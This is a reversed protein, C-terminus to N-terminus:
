INYGHKKEDTESKPHRKRPKQPATNNDENATSNDKTEEKVAPRPNLESKIKNFASTVIGKLLGDSKKMDDAKEAARESLDKIVKGTSESKQGFWRFNEGGSVYAIVYFGILSFIAM